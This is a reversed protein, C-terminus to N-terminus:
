ATEPSSSPYFVAESTCSSFYSASPECHAARASSPFAKQPRSKPSSCIITCFIFSICICCPIHPKSSQACCSSTCFTQTEECACCLPSKGTCHNSSCLFLNHSAQWRDRALSALRSHQRGLRIRCHPACCTDICTSYCEQEALGEGIALMDIDIARYVSARVVSVLKQWCRKSRRMKTLDLAPLKRKATNM